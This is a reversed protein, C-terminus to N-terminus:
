KKALEYEAPDKWMTKLSYAKCLRPSFHIFGASYACNIRQGAGIRQITVTFIHVQAFMACDKCAADRSIVPRSRPRGREGQAFHIGGAEMCFTLPNVTVTVATIETLPDPM